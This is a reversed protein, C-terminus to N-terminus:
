PNNEARDVSIEFVSLSQDIRAVCDGDGNNAYYNAYRGSGLDDSCIANTSDVIRNFKKESTQEFHM